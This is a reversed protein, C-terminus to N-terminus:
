PRHIPEEGPVAPDVPVPVPTQAPQVAPVPSIPLMGPMPQPTTHNQEADHRQADERAPTHPADHRPARPNPDNPKQDPKQNAM